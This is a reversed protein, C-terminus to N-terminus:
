VAMDKPRYPRTDKVDIFDLIDVLATGIENNQAEKMTMELDNKFEKGVLAEDIEEQFEKKIEDTYEWGIYEDNGKMDVLLGLDKVFSILNGFIFSHTKFYYQLVNREHEFLKISENEFTLRKSKITFIAVNSKFRLDEFYIERNFNKDFDGQKLIQQNAKDTSMFEVSIDHKGEIQGNYMFIINMNYKPHHYMAEKAYISDGFTVSGSPAVLLSLIVEPEKRIQELVRLKYAEQNM